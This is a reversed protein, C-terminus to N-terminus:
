LITVPFFDFSEWTYLYVWGLVQHHGVFPSLNNFAMPSFAILFDTFNVYDEGSIECVNEPLCCENVLTKYASKEDQM